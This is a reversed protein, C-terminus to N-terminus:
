DLPNQITGVRHYLPRSARRQSVPQTGAATRRNTNSKKDKHIHIHTSANTLRRVHTRIEWKQPDATSQVREEGEVEDASIVEVM